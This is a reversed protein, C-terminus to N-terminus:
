SQGPNLQAHRDLIEKIHQAVFYPDRLVSRASCRYVSVGCNLLYLDRVEDKDKKLSHVKGDIEIAVRLKRCYFDVFYSGIQFQRNLAHGLRKRQLLPWLLVEPKTMNSRLYRGFNKGGEAM